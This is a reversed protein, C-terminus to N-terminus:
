ASARNREIAARSAALVRAVAATVSKWADIEQKLAARGDKTITYTRVRRGTDSKQWSGEILGRKELRHLAPYLSGEEVKLADASTRQISKAIGYGHDPAAALTRLILLDLTGPLIDRPPKPPM